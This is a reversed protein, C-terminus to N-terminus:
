FLDLSLSMMIYPSRNWKKVTGNFFNEREKCKNIPERRGKPAISRLQGMHYGSTVHPLAASSIQSTRISVHHLHLTWM